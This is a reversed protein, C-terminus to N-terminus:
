QIDITEGDIMLTEKQVKIAQEIKTQLFLDIDGYVEKIKNKAETDLLNLVRERTMNFANKQADMDFADAGKMEDVYTQTTCAVASTIVDSITNFVSELNKDDIQKSKTDVWAKFCKIVNNSLIIIAPIIVIQFVVNLIEKLYDM